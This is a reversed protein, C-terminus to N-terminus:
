LDSAARRSDENVSLIVTDDAFTGLTTNNSTPLISTFLMYLTPGLVSGQPVGGKIPQLESKENGVRVQFQRYSLYSKLLYFYPPPLFQKIKYLLGSNWVRDFAQSVDLFVATCYKGDELAKNIIKTVRHIQQITSHGQRFGFQHHPIWKDPRLDKNIRRPVLKEFVKSLV